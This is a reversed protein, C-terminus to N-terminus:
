FFFSMRLCRLQVPGSRTSTEEIDVRVHSDLLILKVTGLCMQATLNLLQNIDIGTTPIYFYLKM